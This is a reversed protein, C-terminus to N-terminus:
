EITAAKPVEVGWLDSSDKGCPIDRDPIDKRKESGCLPVENLINLCTNMNM